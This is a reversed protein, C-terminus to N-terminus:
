IKLGGTHKETTYSGKEKELGFLVPELLWLEIINLSKDVYNHKLFDVIESKMDVTYAWCNKKLEFSDMCKIGSIRTFPTTHQIAFGHHAAQLLKSHPHEIVQPIGNLSRVWIIYTILAM